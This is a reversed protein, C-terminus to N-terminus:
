LSPAALTLGSSAVVLASAPAPACPSLPAPAAGSESDCWGAGSATLPLAVVDDGREGSSARTGWTGMDGMPQAMDTEGAAAEAEM